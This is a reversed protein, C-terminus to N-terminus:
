APWDVALLEALLEEKTPEPREGAEVEQLILYSRRWTADRVVGAQGEEGSFVPDTSTAYSYLSRLSRLWPV